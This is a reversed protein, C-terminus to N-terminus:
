DESSLYESVRSVPPQKYKFSKFTMLINKFDFLAEVRGKIFTLLM